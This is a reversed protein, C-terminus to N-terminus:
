EASAAAQDLEFQLAGCILSEELLAKMDQAHQIVADLERIKVAALERWRDSVATGNPQSQLLVQIEPLSFSAEKAMQIIALMPLVATTYRRQGSMRRAPPLLGIREYYRLTSAQVGALDAVEGITYYGGTNIKGM